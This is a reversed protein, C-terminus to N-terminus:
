GQRKRSGYAILVAGCPFARLLVLAAVRQMVHGLGNRCIVFEMVFIANYRGVGYRAAKRFVSM